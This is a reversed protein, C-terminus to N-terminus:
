KYSNYLYYTTIIMGILNIGILFLMLFRYFKSSKEFYFVIKTLKPNNKIFPKNKFDLEKVLLNITLSIYPYFMGIIFLIM